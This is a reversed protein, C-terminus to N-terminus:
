PVYRLSGDEDVLKLRDRSGALTEELDGLLCLPCGAETALASLTEAEAAAIVELDRENPNCQISLVTWAGPERKVMSLTNPGEGGLAAYTATKRPSAASRGKDAAQLALALSVYNVIAKSCETRRKLDGGFRLAGIGGDGQTGIKQDLEAADKQWSKALMAAKLPAVEMLQFASASAATLLLALRATAMM